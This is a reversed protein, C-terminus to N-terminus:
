NFPNKLTIRGDVFYSESLDPYSRKQPFLITIDESRFYKSTSSEHGEQQLKDVQSM